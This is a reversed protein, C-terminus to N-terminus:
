KSNLVKRAEELLLHRSFAAVSMRKFKAAKKILKKDEPSVLFYLHEKVKLDKSM